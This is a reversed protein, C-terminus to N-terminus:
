PVFRRAMSKSSPPHQTHIGRAHTFKFFRARRGIHRSLGAGFSHLRDPPREFGM